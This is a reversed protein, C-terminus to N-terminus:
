INSTWWAPLLYDMLQFEASWVPPYIFRGVRKEREGLVYPGTDGGPAAALLHDALDPRNGHHALYATKFWASRPRGDLESALLYPDMADCAEWLWDAIDAWSFQSPRSAMFALLTEPKWAPLGFVTDLPLRPEWRCVRYGDLCRPVKRRPPFGISRATGRRLWDHAQAVSKGGIAAPTDPHSALRARLDRFGGVHGPSMVFNVSWAHRTRLPALWGGRRLARAVAASPRDLNYSGLDATTVVEAQRAHLDNLVPILRETPRCAGPFAALEPALVASGSDM